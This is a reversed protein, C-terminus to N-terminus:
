KIKKIKLSGVGQEILKKKTKKKIIYSSKPLNSHKRMTEQSQYTKHTDFEGSRREQHRFSSSCHMCQRQRM